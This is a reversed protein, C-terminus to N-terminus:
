DLLHCSNVLQISILEDSFLLPPNLVRRQKKIRSGDFWVAFIGLENRVRKESIKIYDANIKCGIYNRDLKRAVIGTTGSIHRLLLVAIFLKIQFILYGRPLMKM